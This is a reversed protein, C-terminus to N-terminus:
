VMLWGFLDRPPKALRDAPQLRAECLIPAPRRVPLLQLMVM